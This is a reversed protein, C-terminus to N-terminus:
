RQLFILDWPSLTTHSGVLAPPLLLGRLCFVMSASLDGLYLCVLSEGGKTDHWPLSTGTSTRTGVHVRLSLGSSRRPLLSPGPPPSCPSKKQLSSCCFGSSVWLWTAELVMGIGIGPPILEQAAQLSCFHSFSLCRRALNLM